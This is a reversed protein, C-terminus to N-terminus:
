RFSRKSNSIVGGVMSPKLLIILLKGASSGKERFLPLRKGTLIKSLGSPTMNMSIAFDTKSTQAIDILEELLIGIGM